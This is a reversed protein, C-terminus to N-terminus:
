CTCSPTETWPLLASTYSLVKRGQPWLFSSCNIKWVLFYSATACCWAPFLVKRSASAHRGRNMGRMELSSSFVIIGTQSVRPLWHVLYSYNYLTLRPAQQQLQKNDLPFSWDHRCRQPKATFSMFNLGTYHPSVFTVVVFFLVCSRLLM